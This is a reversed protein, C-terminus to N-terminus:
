SVNGGRLGVEIQWVVGAVGGQPGAPSASLFRPVTVLDLLAQTAAPAPSGELCSLRMLARSVCEATDALIAADGDWEDDWLTIGGNAVTPLKWCRAWRASLTAVPYGVCPKTPDKPRIPANWWVSLIGDSSCEMDDPISHGHYRVVRSPVPQGCDNVLSDGVLEAFATLVAGLSM